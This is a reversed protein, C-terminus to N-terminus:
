KVIIPKGKQRRRACYIRRVVLAAVMLGTVIYIVQVLTANSDTGPMVGHVLALLYAPLALYHIARWVKKGLQKMLDSSRGNHSDM